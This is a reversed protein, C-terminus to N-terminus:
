SIEELLQLKEQKRLNLRLQLEQEALLQNLREQEALLLAQEHELHKVKNEQACLAARLHSLAVQNMCGAQCTLKHWERRLEIHRCHLEQQHLRLSALEEGLHALRTRLGQERRRKIDLLQKLM